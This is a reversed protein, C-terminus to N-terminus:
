HILVKVIYAVLNEGNDIQIDWAVYEPWVFVMVFAERGHHIGIWMRNM